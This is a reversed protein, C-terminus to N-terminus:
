HYTSGSVSNTYDSNYVPLSSTGYSLAATDTQEYLYINLLGIPDFTGTGQILTNDYYYIELIM